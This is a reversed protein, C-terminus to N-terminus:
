REPFNRGQVAELVTPNERRLKLSLEKESRAREQTQCREDDKPQRENSRMQNNVLRETRDLKCIM